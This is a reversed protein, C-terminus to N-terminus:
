TNDILELFYDMLRICDEEAENYDDLDILTYHYRADISKKKLTIYDRKVDRSISSDDKLLTDRENHNRPHRYKLALYADLYQLVIYFLVTIGWEEYPPIEKKVYNLFDENKKAKSIHRETNVM